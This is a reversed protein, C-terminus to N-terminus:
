RRSWEKLTALLWGLGFAVVIMLIFDWESVSIKKEQSSINESLSPPVVILLDTLIPLM